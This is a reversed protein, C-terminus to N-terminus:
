NLFKISDLITNLGELHESADWDAYPTDKHYRERFTIYLTLDKYTILYQNELYQETEGQHNVLVYQTPYNNIKSKKVEHHGEQWSKETQLKLTSQTGKESQISIFVGNQAGPPMFLLKRSQGSTVTALKYSWNAPYDLSFYKDGDAYQKTDTIQRSNSRRTVSGANNAMEYVRWGAGAIVLLIVFIGLLALTTFGSQNFHYKM